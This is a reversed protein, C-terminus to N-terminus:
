LSTKHYYYATNPSIILRAVWEISRTNLCTPWVADTRRSALWCSECASRWCGLLSCTFPWLPSNWPETRVRHTPCWPLKMDMNHLEDGPTDRLSWVPQRRVRVPQQLRRVVPVVWEVFVASQCLQRGIPPPATLFCVLLLAPICHSTM